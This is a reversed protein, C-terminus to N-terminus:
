NGLRCLPEIDTKSEKIIALNIRIAEKWNQALAATVAQDSLARDTMFSLTDTKHSNDLSSHLLLIVQSYFFRAIFSNSIMRRHNIRQSRRWAALLRWCNTITVLTRINPNTKVCSTPSSQRYGM